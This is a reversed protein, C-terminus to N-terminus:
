TIRQVYIVPRGGSDVSEQKVLNAQILEGLIERRERSTLWQTRRGLETATIRGDIKRLVKKFKSETENESVHDAVKALMQRSLWNAIRIGRDVDDIEIDPIGRRVRSCAFILALKAAKEASRSWVAASVESDRKRRECIDAIHRDMRKRADPTYRCREPNPNESNLNGGSPQYNLWWRVGDMIAEPAEEIAPPRMDVYGPSEFAMMRGLLGETVNESTLSDWFAGPVSTGYVVCHPQNITKIKKTDAYADGIWLSDSSSYLAMLVTGVNYLHPSKAASKMTALLRAIEDLQFLVVPSEAVVSILGASSGIREPGNLKEGGARILLEKNIKRAHEKGGGSVGLGLIYCNTRAGREDQVKRGTITAMLAISGALALLPQPYLATRLNWAIIDGILGPVNLCDAPFEGAASPKNAVPESENQGSLSALLLRLDVDDGAYHGGSTLLFGREGERSSADALKKWLDKDNWPPECGANWEALLPFAREVSLGFGLVLVCAARFTQNHGSQGSIAPPISLLYARARREIDDFSDRAPQYAIPKVVPKPWFRDIFADLVAQCGTIQLPSADYREGTFAFYRGNDYAEVGPTKDSVKPYDVDRKKGGAPLKGKGYLKIGTGSPSFEAYTGFAEVIEIAWQQIEGDTSICGDLDIGFLEDDKAFVFGLGSKDITSQQATELDTWSPPNTSSAKRGTKANIPIKRGDENRWLIWNVRSALEDPVEM